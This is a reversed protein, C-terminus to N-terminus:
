LYHFSLSVFAKTSLASDKGRPANLKVKKVVKVNSGVAPLCCAAYAVQVVALPFLSNLLTSVPSSVLSPFLLCYTSLLIAPHAQSTIRALTNPLLDIPHSPKPTSTPAAPKSPNSMTIPDILPM